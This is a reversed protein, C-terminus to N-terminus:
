RLYDEVRPDLWYLTQKNLEVTDNCFPCREFAPGIVSAKQILDDVSWAEVASKFEAKCHSCKVYAPL